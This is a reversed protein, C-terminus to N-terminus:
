PAAPATAPPVGGTMEEIAQLTAALERECDKFASADVEGRQIRTVVPEDWSGSMRYYSEGLSSLPKRFLQSVLLMTAGGVPGGLVAGGVTLVNSVEPRVVALQDYDRNTLGAKGVVALGAAPGELGLNCTYASGAGVRFDGRIADFALGKNFVDSFDLALRRPLATVSLLGLLRGGGPELNLVQGKDIAVNIEGSADRLFDASPAGPWVLSVGVRASQADIVPDYGLQALTDKVSTSDLVFQLRTVQPGADDGQVRWSGEGNMSFSPARTALRRAVLGDPARTASLEVAGFHWEGLAADAAKVELAPSERPDPPQDGDRVDAEMLWLRQM